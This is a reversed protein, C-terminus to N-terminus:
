SVKRELYASIAKDVEALTYTRGDDLLAVIIDRHQKYKKSAVLQGPTYTTEPEKVGAKETKGDPGSIPEKVM